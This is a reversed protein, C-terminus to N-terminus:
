FYLGDIERAAFRVLQLVVYGVNKPGRFGM